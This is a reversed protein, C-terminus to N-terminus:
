GLHAEDLASQLSQLYGASTYSAGSVADVKASQAKVVEKDLKPVARSNIIQDLGPTTPYVIADAAVIRGSRIRLQVQVPGYETRAPRGSVLVDGPRPLVTAASGAPGSAALSSDHSTPYVLLAIGSAATAALVSSNRVVLWTHTSPKSM